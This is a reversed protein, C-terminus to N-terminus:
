LKIIKINQYLKDGKVVELLYTAKPLHEINFNPKENSLSAEHLLTGNMDFLRCNYKKNPEDIKISVVNTTPNPYIEFTNQLTTEEVPTIENLIIQLVGQSIMVDGEEIITNLPEGISFHLTFNESEFSTGSASMVSSSISQAQLFGSCLVSFLLLNLKSM